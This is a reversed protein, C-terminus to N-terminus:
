VHQRGISVLEIRRVGFCLARSLSWEQADLVTRRHRPSRHAKGATVLARTQQPMPLRPLLSFGHDRIDVLGGSQNMVWVSQHADAFREIQATKRADRSLDPDDILHQVTQTVQHGRRMSYVDLMMNAQFPGEEPEDHLRSAALGCLDTVGLCTLRHGVAKRGSCELQRLPGTM